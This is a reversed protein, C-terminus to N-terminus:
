AVWSGEAGVSRDTCWAGRRVEGLPFTKALVGLSIHDSVRIGAPLGAPIRAM